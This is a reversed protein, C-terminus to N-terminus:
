KGRLKRATPQDEKHLRKRIARLRKYAARQLAGAEKRTIRKEIMRGWSDFLLDKTQEIDMTEIDQLLKASKASLDIKKTAM